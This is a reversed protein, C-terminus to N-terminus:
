SQIHVQVTSLVRREAPLVGTVGKLDPLHSALSSTNILTTIRQNIPDLSAIWQLRQQLPSPTVRAPSAKIVDSIEIMVGHVGEFIEVCWKTPGRLLTEFRAGCKSVVARVTITLLTRPFISLNTTTCRLRFLLEDLSLSKQLLSLFSM